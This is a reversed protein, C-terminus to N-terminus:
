YEADIIIENDTIRVDSVTQGDLELQERIERTWIMHDNDLLMDSIGVGVAIDGHLEGKRLQLLLVQNQSLIDGIRLGSIIRGNDDKRTQVDIDYDTLQIGTM